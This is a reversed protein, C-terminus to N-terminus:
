GGNMAPQSSRPKGAPERLFTHKHVFSDHPEQRNRSECKRDTHVIVRLGNALTFKEHPIDVQRILKAVPVPQMGGRAAAPTIAVALAFASVSLFRVITKNVFV